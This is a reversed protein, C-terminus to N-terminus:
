GGNDPKRPVLFRTCSGMCIRLNCKEPNCKQYVGPKCESFNKKCPILNRIDCECRRNYNYLGDCSIIPLYIKMIEKVDM